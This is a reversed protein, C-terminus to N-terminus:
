GITRSREYRWFPNLESGPDATRILHTALMRLVFQAQGLICRRASIYPLTMSVVGAAGDEFNQKNYECDPSNNLTASACFPVGFVKHLQTLLDTSIEPLLQGLHAPTLWSKINCSTSSRTSSHAGSGRTGGRDEAAREERELVGMIMPAAPGLGRTVFETISELKFRVGAFGTISGAARRVALVFSTTLRALKLKVVGGDDVPVV